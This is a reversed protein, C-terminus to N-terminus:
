KKHNCNTIVLRYGFDIAEEELLHGYCKEWLGSDLDAKLRALGENINKVRSFTSIARRVGADLYAEPHRWHACLFGDTCDHFIPVTIIDIPGLWSSLQEISPFMSEDIAKIEPFYDLLWFHNVFGVWTLLLVRKGSVRLAEKLGGEIDVWHHITLIGLACDFSNDKFPLAEAYAQVVLASNELRQEIMVSSPEVAVVRRDAPEYSGVGAGINIIKAAGFFHDSLAAAIRPDPRRYNQYTEGISDYLIKENRKIM